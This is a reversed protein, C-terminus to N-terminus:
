RKNVKNESSTVYQGFRELTDKLVASAKYTAFEGDQHRLEDFASKVTNLLINKEKSMLELKFNQVEKSVTKGNKVIVDYLYHTECSTCEMLLKNNEPFAKTSLEGHGCYSCFNVRAIDKATRESVFCLNSNKM